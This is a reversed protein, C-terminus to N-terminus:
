PSGPRLLARRRREIVIRAHRAREEYPMRTPKRDARCWQRGCFAYGHAKLWAHADRPTRGPFRVCWGLVHPTVPPNGTFPRRRFWHAPVPTRGM